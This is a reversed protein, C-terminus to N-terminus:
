QGVQMEHEYDLKGTFWPKVTHHDTSAIDTLHGVMLSRVHGAVVQREIADDDATTGRYALLVSVALLAGCAFSAGLPVWSTWSIRVREMWGLAHPEHSLLHRIRRELRPPAKYRTMGQKLETLGAKGPDDLDETTM